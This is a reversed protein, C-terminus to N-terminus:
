GSPPPRVPATLTGSIGFCMGKDVSFSIDDVATFAGFSKKINRADIVPQPENIDSM